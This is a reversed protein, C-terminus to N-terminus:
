AEDEERRRLTAMGLLGTAMLLMMGPEPVETEDGGYITWHSLGNVVDGNTGSGSTNYDLSSLSGAFYYLSFSDGAKLAIVFNSYTTGFNITGTSGWGDTDVSTTESVNTLGFGGNWAGAAPAMEIQAIVDSTQNKNNGAWAGSCDTYMPVSAWVGCDPNIPTLQAQANATAAVTLALAAAAGRVFIKM